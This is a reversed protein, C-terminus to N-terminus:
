EKLGTFVIGVGGKDFWARQLQDRTWVNTSGWDKSASDHVLITGGPGFGIIAILHGQTGRRAYIRPPNTIEGHRFRISACIVQRNAVARRVQEWSRFRTIYGRL